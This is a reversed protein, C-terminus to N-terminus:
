VTVRFIKLLESETLKKILSFYKIADEISNMRVQNVVEKGVKLYFTKM